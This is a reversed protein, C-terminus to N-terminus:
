CCLVLQRKRRPLKMIDMRNLASNLMKKLLVMRQHNYIQFLKAAHNYAGLEEISRTGITSVGFMTGYKEAAQAIALEGDHHFLRQMATPSMFLPMDLKQGLVSVSLDVDSIGALVNPVLDVADFASTNRALTVEDDSGGDIYHFIPSPLRQKALKRFDSTRYCNKLRM